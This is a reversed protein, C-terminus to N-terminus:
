WGRPRQSQVKVGGWLSPSTPPASSDTVVPTVQGAAIRELWRIADEYRKRIQEADGTPNYGQGTMVDYVAIACCARKFDSGWAILPLMFRQSLYGDILGSAGDLAQGLIEDIEEPTPALGAFGGAPIGFAPSQLEAPTAYAM